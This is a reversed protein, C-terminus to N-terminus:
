LVGLGPQLMPYATIVYRKSNSNWDFECLSNLSEVCGYKVMILEEPEIIIPILACNTIDWVLEFNNRKADWIWMGAISVSEYIIQYCLAVTKTRLERGLKVIWFILDLDCLM